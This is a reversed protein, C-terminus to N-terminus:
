AAGSDRKAPNECPRTPERLVARYYQAELVDLRCKRGADEVLLVSATGKPNLFASAARKENSIRDALARAVAVSASADLVLDASGLTGELDASQSAGTSHQFDSVLARATTPGGIANLAEALAVAKPRGLDAPLLTHRALNHPHLIDPDIPTWTFCGERVLTMAIHSGIAGAGILAVNRSDARGAGSCIAALDRDFARHVQLMDLPVKDPETSRPLGLARVFGRGGEAATDLCGLRCGIEGLSMHIVFAKLDVLEPPALGNRQIPVIVLLILRAELLDPSALAALLDSRITALLDTGCGELEASLHALNTPAHRMPGSIQTEITM